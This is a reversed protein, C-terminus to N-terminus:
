RAATRHLRVALYAAGILGGIGFALRPSGSGGPLYASLNLVATAQDTALGYVAVTVIPLAVALLKDGMTWPRAVILLAVGVLWLPVPLALAGFGALVIAIAALKNRQALDLYDARRRSTAAGPLARGSVTWVDSPAARRPYASRAGTAGARAPAGGGGQAPAGADGTGPSTEDAATAGLPADGTDGGPTGTIAAATTAADATRGDPRGTSEDAPDGAPYDAVYAYETGHSEAYEAPGLVPIPQTENPSRQSPPRPVVSAGGGTRGARGSAASPAARGPHAQRSTDPEEGGPGPSAPDASGLTTTHRAEQRAPAAFRPDEPREAALRLREQEVLADPDGFRAIIRQVQAPKDARQRVRMDDIRRRLRALFDLREDSRLVGHAADAVRRMYELAIQDARESM